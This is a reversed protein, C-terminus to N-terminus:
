SLSPSRNVTCVAASGVLSEHKKHHRYIRWGDIGLANGLAEMTTLTPSKRNLEIDQVCTRSIGASRALESVSMGRLLRAVKLSEGITMM